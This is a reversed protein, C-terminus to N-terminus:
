TYNIKYKNIESFYLDVNRKLHNKNLIGKLMYGGKSLSKQKKVAAKLVRLLILLNINNNNM